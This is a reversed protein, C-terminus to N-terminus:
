CICSSSASCDPNVFTDFSMFMTIKDGYNLDNLTWKTKGSIEGSIIGNTMTGHWWDCDNDKENDDSDYLRLNVQVCGSYKGDAGFGDGSCTVNNCNATGQIQLDTFYCYLEEVGGNEVFRAEPTDVTFSAGCTPASYWLMNVTVTHVTVPLTKIEKKLVAKSAGGASDVIWTEIKCDVNGGAGQIPLNDIIVDAVVDDNSTNTFAADTTYNNWVMTDPSLNNGAYANSQVKVGNTVVDPWSIEGLHVEGEVKIYKTQGYWIDMSTIIANNASDRFNIIKSYPEVANHNYCAFDGMRTPENYIVTILYSDDIHHSFPGFWSFKNLNVTHGLDYLSDNDSNGYIVESIDSLKIDSVEVTNGNVVRTGIDSARAAINSATNKYYSNIIKAM